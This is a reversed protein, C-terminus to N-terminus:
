RLDVEARLRSEPVNRIVHWRPDHLGKRGYERPTGLPVYPESPRARLTEIWRRPPRRPPALWEILYGLRLALSRSEMRGVYAALRNWDMEALASQLVQVVGGLGGALDPRSLCDLVTRELDSVLLTQGRRKLERFGFFRRPQVRIRRFEVSKTALSSGRQPTVVYYVRSAQPLLSLLEAATAFGLYYPAALHAAIRLPDTEPVADPGHRGPNLLYRGAGIRQLWGKQGLNHALKRAFGSSVQARRQLEGLTVADRGEEELSLVVRAELSSLSRARM